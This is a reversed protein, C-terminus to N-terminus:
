ANVPSLQSSAFRGLRKQRTRKQQQSGSAPYIIDIARIRKLGRCFSNDETLVEGIQIPLAVAMGQLRIKKKFPLKSPMEIYPKPYNVTGNPQLRAQDFTFYQIARSSDDLSMLVGWNLSRMYMIQEDYFYASGHGCHIRSEDVSQNELWYESYPTFIAEPPSQSPENPVFNHIKYQALTEHDIVLLSGDELHGVPPKFETNTGYRVETSNGAAAHGLGEQLSARAFDYNKRDLRVQDWKEVMGSEEINFIDHGNWYSTSLFNANSPQAESM